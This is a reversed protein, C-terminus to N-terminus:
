LVEHIRGSIFIQAVRLYHKGSHSFSQWSKSFAHLLSCNKNRSRPSCYYLLLHSVLTCCASGLQPLEAARGMEEWDGQLCSVCDLRLILVVARMEQARCLAVARSRVPLTQSSVPITSQQKQPYNLSHVVSFLAQFLVLNQLNLPSGASVSISQFQKRM